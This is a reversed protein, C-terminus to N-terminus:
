LFANSSFGVAKRRSPVQSGDVGVSTATVVAWDPIYSIDRRPKRQAFLLVPKSSVRTQPSSPSNCPRM